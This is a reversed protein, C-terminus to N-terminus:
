SGPTLTIVIPETSGSMYGEGELALYGEGNFPHEPTAPVFRWDVMTWVMEAGDSPNTFTADVTVGDAGLDWLGSNDGSPVSINFAIQRSLKQTVTLDLSNLYRDRALNNRVILALDRCQREVSGVTLTLDSLIFPQTLTDLSIAPFGAPADDFLRGLLDLECSLPEGSSARATFTDVGVGTLIFSEGSNPNWHVYREPTSNGLPYTVTPSGSPTGGLAWPLIKTWETVTPESRFRPTVVNRNHRVRNGHKSFRGRTGNTDRLEKRIGPNFDIYDLQDTVTTSTGIGLKGLATVSPPM